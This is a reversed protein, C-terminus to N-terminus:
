GRGVQIALGGNTCIPEIKGAAFILFAALVYALGAGVFVLRYGMTDVVPGIVMQALAGM